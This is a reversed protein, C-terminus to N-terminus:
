RNGTSEEGQAYNEGNRNHKMTIRYGDMTAYDFEQRISDKAVDPLEIIQSLKDILKRAHRNASQKLEEKMQGKAKNMRVTANLRTQTLKIKHKTASQFVLNM